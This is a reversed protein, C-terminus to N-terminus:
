PRAPRRVPRETLPLERAVRELEALIPTLASPGDDDEATGPPLTPLDRTGASAAAALRECASAVCALRARQAASPEVALDPLLAAAAVLRDLLLVKATREAHM